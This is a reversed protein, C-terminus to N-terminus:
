AETITVCGANEMAGANYEPTFIQDYKEFPYAADFEREFFEFGIKTLDLIDDADVYEALSRRAYVGLEIPGRRSQVTDTVGVYPGSVLATVYPSLRPTPAFTWTALATGDRDGAPTPEVTPSVSRITWHAPATVSYTFTAKLDPQEFVAFVRRADAVEFQSYLYVEGDVPDVFRHMGEGTNTYLATAEVVLENKAALGPLAIRSDAWHTAPDLAVGNLTVSEVSEGVFDLFTEAGERAGFRVTSRTAFSTPGTALDLVVDYSQVTLLDARTAAEERTLNQGPM